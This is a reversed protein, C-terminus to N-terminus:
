LAPLPSIGADLPGNGLFHTLTSMFDLLQRVQHHVEQKGAETLTYYKRIRKGLAVKEVTLHGEAELKHLIPYLSGEKILIKDQSITKVKQAIEYGYMRGHDQLVQLILTTLTGRVLEKPYM